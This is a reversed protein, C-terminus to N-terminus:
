PFSLVPLVLPIVGVGLVLLFLSPASVSRVQRAEHGVSFSRELLFFLRSALVRISKQHRVPYFAQHFFQIM